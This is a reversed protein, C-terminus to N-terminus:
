LEEAFRGEARRFVLLGVGLLLAAVVASYGLGVAHNIGTTPDFSPWYNCAVIDQFAVSIWTLPNLYVIAAFPGITIGFLHLRLDTGGPEVKAVLALPYIIPTLFFWVQLAIGQIYDVDRFYVNGAAVLLGLGFTFAFVILILVPALLLPFGVGVHFFILLPILLVLSILYNVLAAIAASLTLLVRPFAVKKVLTANDTVSRLGYGVGQGFFNWALLASLLFVPYPPTGGSPCSSGFRVLRSFVATFVIMYLLPNLLSWLAGLASGKHRSQLDRRVLERLLELNRKFASTPPAARGRNQESTLDGSAL